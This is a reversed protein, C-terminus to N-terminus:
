SSVAGSRVHCELIRDHPHVRVVTGQGEGNFDDVIDGVMVAPWSGGNDAKRFDMRGTAEIVTEGSQNVRQPETTQLINFVRGWWPGGAIAALTHIYGSGSKGTATLRKITIPILARPM